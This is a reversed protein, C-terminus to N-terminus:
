NVVIGEQSWKSVGVGAPPKPSTRVWRTSGDPNTKKFETLFNSSNEYCHPLLTALALLM